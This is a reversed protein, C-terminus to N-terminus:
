VENGEERQTQYIARARAAEEATDDDTSAAWIALLDDFTEVHDKGTYLQIIDTLGAQPAGLNINVPKGEEDLVTVNNEFWEADTWEQPNLRGFRDYLKPESYFGSTLIGVHQGRAEGMRESAVAELMLDLMGIGNEPPAGFIMNDGIGYPANPRPELILQYMCLMVDHVLGRGGERKRCGALIKQAMRGSMDRYPSQGERGLVKNQEAKQQLIRENKQYFDIAKQAIEVVGPHFEIGEIGPIRYEERLQFGVSRAENEFRNVENCAHKWMLYFFGKRTSVSAQDRPAVKVAWLLLDLRRGEAAKVMIQNHIDEVIDRLFPFGQRYPSAQCMDVVEEATIGIDLDIGMDNALMLKNMFQGVGINEFAVEIAEIADELRYHDGWVWEAEPWAGAKLGRDDAPIPTHALDLEPIPVSTNFFVSKDLEATIGFSKEDIRMAFYEGNTNPQRWCIAIREGAQLDPIFRRLIELGNEYKAIDEEDFVGETNPMIPIERLAICLGDDYDGGGHLEKYSEWLKGPIVVSGTMQDYVLTDEDGPLDTRGGLREIIERSCVYGRVTWPAPAWMRADPHIDGGPNKVRDMRSEKEMLRSRMALIIGRPILSTITASCRPDLGAANVRLWNKALVESPKPPRPNGHSDIGSRDRLYHSADFMTWPPLEGERLYELALNLNNTLLQGCIRPTDLFGKMWSKTQYDHFVEGLPKKPDWTCFMEAGTGKLVLEEKMNESGTIVDYVQGWLKKIDRDPVIIADGKVMSDGMLLRFTTLRSIRGSKIDRILANRESTNWVNRACKIAFSRSIISCGDLHHATVGMEELADRGVVHINVRGAFWVRSLRAIENMRKFGKNGPRFDLGLVDFMSGWPQSVGDIEVKCTVIRSASMSPWMCAHIPGMQQFFERFEGDSIENFYFTLKVEVGHQKMYRKIAWILFHPRFDGSDQQVHGAPIAQRVNTGVILTRMRDRTTHVFEVQPVLTLTSM